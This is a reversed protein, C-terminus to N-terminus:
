KKNIKEDIEDFVKKQMEAIEDDVAEVSLVEPVYFQM